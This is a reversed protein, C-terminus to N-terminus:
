EQPLAAILLYGVAAVLGILTPAGEPLGKIPVMVIVMVVLIFTVLGIGITNLYTQWDTLLSEDMAEM